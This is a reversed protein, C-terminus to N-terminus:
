DLTFCLLKPDKSVYQKFIHKEVINWSDQYNTCLKKLEGYQITKNINSIELLEGISIFNRMLEMRCIGLRYNKSKTKKTTGQKKGDVSVEPKRIHRWWSISSPCPIKGDTKEFEFTFDSQQILPVNLKFPSCLIVEEFRTTIAGNLADKSFPTKGAVTFSKLYIPRTLLFSLLCGQIGLYCWKAIKDSCSVSLTPDGRGLFRSSNFHKYIIHFGFWVLGPKTRIPGKVHFNTGDKCPDHLHSEPLCKAGTRYIDLVDSDLKLKKSANQMTIEVCKNNIKMNENRTPEKPFITADGCPM